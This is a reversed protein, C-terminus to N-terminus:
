AAGFIISNVSTHTIEREEVSNAHHFGRLFAKGELYKNIAGLGPILNIGHKKNISTDKQRNGYERHIWKRRNTAEKPRTDHGTKDM